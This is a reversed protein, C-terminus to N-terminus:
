WITTYPVEKIFRIEFLPAEYKIKFLSTLKDREQYLLSYLLERDQRLELNGEVILDKGAILLGKFEVDTNKEVLVSGNTILIGEYKGAPLILNKEEPIIYIVPMEPEIIEFSDNIPLVNKNSVQVAFNIHSTYNWATHLMMDHLINSFFEKPQMGRIPMETKNNAFLIGTTYGSNHGEDLANLEINSCNISKIHSIYDDIYDDHKPPTNIYQYILNIQTEFDLELFNEALFENIYSPTSNPFYFSHNWGGVSEFSKFVTEALPLSELGFLFDSEANYNLTGNIYVNGDIRAKGDEVAVIGVSDSIDEPCGYFDGEIHLTNGSGHVVAEGFTYFDSSFSALTNVNEGRIYLGNCIVDSFFYAASNNVSIDNKVYVPAYANILSNDNVFLDGQSFLPGYIFLKGGNRIKIVDDTILVYDFLKSNYYGSVKNISIESDIRRRIKGIEGRSSIRIRILDKNVNEYKVLIDVRSDPSAVKLEPSPFSMYYGRNICENRIQTWLGNSVHEQMCEQISSLPRQFPDWKFNKLCEEQAYFVLHRLEEIAFNMGTEALYYAEEFINENQSIMFHSGSISLIITMFLSMAAMIYIVIILISGRM